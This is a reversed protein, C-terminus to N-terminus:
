GEIEKEAVFHYTALDETLLVFAVTDQVTAKTRELGVCISIFIALRTTSPYFYLRQSHEIPSCALPIAGAVQKAINGGM